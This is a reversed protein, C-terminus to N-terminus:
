RPATFLASNVGNVVNIRELTCQSTCVHLEVVIEGQDGTMVNVNTAKKCGKILHQPTSLVKTLDVTCQM